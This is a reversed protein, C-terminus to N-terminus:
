TSAYTFSDAFFEEEPLGATTFEARAADIMAPAGCAYVQFGSLDAFDELVAKHVLGTRGSWQDASTADSLVPVYDLHDCQTQWQGPLDPLYLGARDRAGWYLHMPRAIRNHLAHEVLAKIPAFGTGGALLIMPKDSEERLFFTGLPGQFRLIDKEKMTEFVQTTFRGGPILRIHLQLAGDDHPANALSFARRSGDKLLFEIYQGALFQLRESAPLRLSLNIVDPALRELKNVRCPLTKVPIEGGTRVERVELVLDSLPRARCLLAKGQAREAASLAKEQYEGPEIEGSVVQAKCAGCAGNRCGYPLILGASDATALITEDAPAAFAHGSPQLTIRFAM